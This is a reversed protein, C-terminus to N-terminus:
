AALLQRVKYRSLGMRDAIVRQSLGTRSLRKVRQAPSQTLCDIIAVMLVLPLIIFWFIEAM